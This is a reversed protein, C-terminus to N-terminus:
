PKRCLVDGNWFMDGSNLGASSTPLSAFFAIIGAETTGSAGAIAGNLASAFLPDGEKWPYQPITGSM